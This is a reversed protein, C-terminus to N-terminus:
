VIGLELLAKVGDAESNTKRLQSLAARANSGSGKRGRDRGPVLTKQVVKVPRGSKELSKQRKVMDALRAANRLVLVARHDYIQAMEDESFGVSAMFQRIEKMEKAAKKEDKWEPIRELLKTREEALTSQLTAQQAETNRRLLEQEVAKVRDRQAQKESWIQRQVAWEVPDEERLKAWDPEPEVTKMQTELAAAVQALQAREEALQRSLAEADARLKAAEQTRQTFVKTRSYGKKLEALTLKETKGDVKVTVVAKEDVEQAEEEDESDEDQEEEDQEEDDSEDSEDDSEDSEGEGEEESESDESEDEDEASDDAADDDDDDGDDSAAVATRSGPKKPPTTLFSGEGDLLGSVVETAERDTLTGGTETSTSTATDAM